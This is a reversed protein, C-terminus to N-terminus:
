VKMLWDSPTSGIDDEPKKNLESARELAQALKASWFEAVGVFRETLEIFRRRDLNNAPEHLRLLIADSLDDVGFFCGKTLSWDLNASLLGPLIVDTKRGTYVGVVSSWHILEDESGCSIHLWLGSEGIAMSCVNAENPILDDVGLYQSLESLRERFLSINM